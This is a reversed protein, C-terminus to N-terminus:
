AGGGGRDTEALTSPHADLIKGPIGRAVARRPFVARRQGPKPARPGSVPALAAGRAAGFSPDLQWLANFVAGHLQAEAGLVSRLLAPRATLEREVRERVPEILAEGAEATGGGFVIAERTSCPPSRSGGGDRRPRCGRHRAAEAARGDASPAAGRGREAGRRDGGAGAHSHVAGRRPARSRWASGAAAGPGDRHMVFNGVEGAAHHHGGRIRGNIVIGAGLGTGLSLFVFNNTEKAGGRWREGLAAAKADQDVVVPVGLQRALVDRLPIDTWGRLNGAAIM